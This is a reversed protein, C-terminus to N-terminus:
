QSGREVQERGVPADHERLEGGRQYTPVALADALEGAIRQLVRAHLHRYAIHAFAKGFGHAAVIGDQEVDVVPGEREDMLRVVPQVPVRANASAEPRKTTAAHQRDPRGSRVLSVQPPEPAGAEVGRCFDTAARGPPPLRCTTKTATFADGIRRPDPAGHSLRTAEGPRGAIARLTNRARM